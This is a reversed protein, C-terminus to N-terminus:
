THPSPLWLYCQALATYVSKRMRGCTTTQARTKARWGADHFKSSVIMVRIIRAATSFRTVSCSRFPIFPGKLVDLPFPFSLSVFFYSLFLLRLSGEFSNNRCPNEKTRQLTVGFLALPMQAGLGTEYKLFVTNLSFHANAICSSRRRIADEKRIAFSVIYWQFDM